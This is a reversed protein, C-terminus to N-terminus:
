NYEAPEPYPKQSFPTGERNIVDSGEVKEQWQALHTSSASEELGAVIQHANNKWKMLRSIHKTAGVVCFIPDWMKQKKYQACLARLYM